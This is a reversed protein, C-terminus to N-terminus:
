LRIKKYFSRNLFSYHFLLWRGLIYNQCRPPLSFFIKKAIFKIPEEVFVTNRRRGVNKQNDAFIAAYGSEVPFNTFIPKIETRKAHVVIVVPHKSVLGVRGKVKAPDTVSYCKVGSDLEKGPFLHEVLIVDNIKFGNEPQFIRFFLEPSFQYFGHGMHQNAPSFIFIDGGKKLVKMCNAIAVPFNFVHELAGGDIVADCSEYHEPSINFNMDQVIDCHEYDSIDLSKVSKAGLFVEFFNDAYKDACSDVKDSKVGYRRALYRIEPLSLYLTQHGITLLNDFCCNNRKAEMLMVADSYTIGM